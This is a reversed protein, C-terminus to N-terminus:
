MERAGNILSIRMKELLTESPSGNLLRRGRVIARLQSAVFKEIDCQNEAPSIEITPASQLLGEIQADNRSTVLVKVLGDSENVIRHLAEILESRAEQRLEDIADLAIYVTSRMKLELILETCDHSGLRILNIRSKTSGAVREYESLIKPEITNRKEDVALQRLISRFIASPSARDSESPEDACYYYAVAPEGGNSQNESLLQDVMVSFMSSKGCGRVGRVLLISSSSSQLWNRYVSHNSLWTGSEPMLRSSVSKHHVRFPCTSLWELFNHLKEGDVKAKTEDFVYKLKVAVDRLRQNQRHDHEDTGVRDMDRRRSRLAANEIGSLAKQAKSIEQDVIQQSRAESLDAEGQLREKAQDYCERYKSILVHEEMYIQELLKFFLQHLDTVKLSKLKLVLDCNDRFPLWAMLDQDLTVPIIGHNDKSYSSRISLFAIETLVHHFADHQCQAEVISRINRELTHSDVAKKHYSTIIANIYSSTFSNQYYRKLVESGCVVVKDVRHITGADNSIDGGPLLCFQNSLINKISDSGGVRSAWLPLPAKDSVTRSRIAKLWKILRVVCWSNANGEKANEHAYVIFVSPSESKGFVDTEALHDLISIFLKDM